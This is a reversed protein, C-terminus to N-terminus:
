VWGAHDRIAGLGLLGIGWLILTSLFVIFISKIRYPELAEDPVRPEVFTALYRHKKASEIRAVELSALVSTYAKEAFTREILLPEYDAFVSSLGNELNSLQNLTNNNNSISSKEAVIQIELADIQRKLAKIPSTGNRMFSTKAILEAKATALQAELQGILTMKAVATQTPDLDQHKQRFLNMAQRAKTVRLEALKVEKEAFSLDDHRSRKSLTNILQESANIVADALVKSDNPNFTRVTLSTIGSTPDFSSTVMKRWYQTQKEQTSNDGLRSLIDAEVRNFLPEINIHIKIAALISYSLIFDQLIYGDSSASQSPLGSIGGLLDLQPSENSKIAFKATSVYRDSAILSFYVTALLTPIIVIFLFSRQKVNRNKWFKNLIIKIKM